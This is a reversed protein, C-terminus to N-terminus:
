PEYHHEIPYVESCPRCITSAMGTNRRTRGAVAKFVPGSEDEDCQLCANLAGSPEHHPAHLLAFCVGTCVNRTNISNYYWIQACAHTFGIEELCAVHEDMSSALHELGCRRVPNALEPESLYVALDTLTSCAGCTGTHTVRAGAAEAQEASAFTRLRYTKPADGAVFACVASASTVSSSANEYPNARLDPPPDLLTWARLAAFDSDTYRPPSWARGDCDCTPQCQESTLGTHESPMGFLVDGCTAARKDGGVLALVFLFSSRYLM